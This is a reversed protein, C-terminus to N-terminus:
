FTRTNSKPPPVNSTESSSEGVTDKLYKSSVAIVVQTAVVPILAYNIPQGILELSIVADIQTLIRHRQLTQLFGSLISLLLERTSLLSLNVQGEDRRVSRAGLVEVVGKGTGLKLANRAVQEIAALGTVLASRSAFICSESM